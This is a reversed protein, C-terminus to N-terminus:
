RPRRIAQPAPVNDSSDALGGGFYRETYYGYVGWYMTCQLMSPITNLMFILEVAGLERPVQPIRSHSIFFVTSYSSLPLKVRIETRQMCAFHVSCILM